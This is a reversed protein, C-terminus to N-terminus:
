KVEDQKKSVNGQCFSCLGKKKNKEMLVTGCKKCKVEVM